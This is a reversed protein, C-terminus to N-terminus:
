ANDELGDSATADWAREDERCQDFAPDSMYAEAVAEQQEIAIRLKGVYPNKQVQMKSLDYEARM